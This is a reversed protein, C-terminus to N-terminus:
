NNVVRKGFPKRAIPLAINVSTKCTKASFTEIKKEPIFSAQKKM